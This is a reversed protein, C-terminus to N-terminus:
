KFRFTPDRFQDLIITNIKKLEIKEIPHPTNQLLQFTGQPLFSAVRESYIRDAMDDQDGLCILVTHFIQKVIEETLMPREGLEM